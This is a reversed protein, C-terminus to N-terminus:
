PNFRDWVMDHISSLSNIIEQNRILLTVPENEASYMIVMKESVAITAGLPYLKPSVIISERLEQKNATMRKKLFDATPEGSIIVKVFIGKMIRRQQYENSYGQGTVQFISDPSEFVKWIENKSSEDLFINNSTILGNIGPFFQTSLSGRVASGMQSINEISELLLIKKHDYINILQKPDVARYLNRKGVKNVSMIGDKVLKELPEYAATRPIGAKKALDSITAQEFFLGAFYIKAQYDSLGLSQALKQESTNM